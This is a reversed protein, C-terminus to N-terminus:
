DVSGGITCSVVVTAGVVVGDVGVVVGVVVVDVDVDLTASVGIGGVRKFLTCSRVCSCYLSARFRHAGGVFWGCMNSCHDVSVFSSAELFRDMM